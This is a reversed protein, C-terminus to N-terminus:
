NAIIGNQIIGYKRPIKSTDDIIKIILNISYQKEELIKSQYKWEMTTIITFKEEFTHKVLFESM